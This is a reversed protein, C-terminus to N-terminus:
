QVQSSTKNPQVKTGPLFNPKMFRISYKIPSPDLFIPELITCTPALDNQHVKTKLGLTFDKPGIKLEEGNPNRLEQTEKTKVGLTSHGSAVLIHFM